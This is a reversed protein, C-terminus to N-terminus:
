DHYNIFRRLAKAKTSGKDKMGSLKQRVKSIKIKGDAGKLSSDKSLIGPNMADHPGETMVFRDGEKKAEGSKRLSDWLAAADATQHADSYLPGLKEHALRYMEKGIGYGRYDPKVIVSDVQYSGQYPKLRLAGVKDQGYTALVVKTGNIDTVNFDVTQEEEELGAKTLKTYYEPDEALHQLAIRKAVKPDNTHEMEVKIGMKLQHPDVKSPNAPEIFEKLLEKIIKTLQIKNM